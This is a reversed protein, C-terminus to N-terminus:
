EGQQSHYSFLFWLFKEAMSNKEIVSLMKGNVESLKKTGYVRSDSSNNRNDGLFFVSNEEVTLCNAELEAQIIKTQNDAPTKTLDISTIQDEPIYGLLGYNKENLHFHEALMKEKIYPEDSKKFSSEGSKCLYLDVYKGSQSQVFLVKDGEFAIARKILVRDDTKTKIHVTIVDNYDITFGRQMMFVSQGDQITNEMSEGSVPTLRFLYFFIVLATLIVILVYLAINITKKNEFNEAQPKLLREGDCLVMDM